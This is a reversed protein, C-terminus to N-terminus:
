RSKARPDPAAADLVVNFSNDRLNVLISWASGVASQTGFWRAMRSGSPMPALRAGIREFGARAALNGFNLPTWTYLHQDPNAEWNRQKKRAPTECPVVLRARGGPKLTRLIGRLADLPNDVHELAHFSIALDVSAPAIEAVTSHVEIGKARAEQAAREGIEVGLRRAAPLSGLIGGTGCGFDLITLSDGALDRFFRARLQQNSESRATTRQAFYEDGSAQYYNEIKTASEQTSMVLTGNRTALFQM